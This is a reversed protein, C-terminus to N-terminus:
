YPPLRVDVNSKLNIQYRPREDERKNIKRKEPSFFSRKGDLVPLPVDTVELAVAFVLWALSSSMPAIPVFLELETKVGPAPYM